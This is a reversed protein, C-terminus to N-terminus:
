LLAIKVSLLFYGGFDSVFTSSIHSARLVSLFFLAPDFWIRGSLLWGLPFLSPLWLESCRSTIFLLIPLFSRFRTLLFSSATFRFDSRFCFHASLRTDFLTVDFGRYPSSLQFAFTSGFGFVLRSTLISSPLISDETLHVLSYLSLQVSVLFSGLPLYRLPYCRIRPLTSSASFRFNLRFWFYASLRTDFTQLPVQTELIKAKSLSLFSFSNSSLTYIVQQV